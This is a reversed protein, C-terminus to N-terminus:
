KLMKLFIFFASVKEREFLFILQMILENKNDM